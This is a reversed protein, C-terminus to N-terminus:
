KSCDLVLAGTTARSELRSHAAAADGLAFREPREVKLFSRLGSFVDAANAELSARDAIYDTLKPRTIYLSGKQSLLLPAFDPVPGSANGYTVMMGRPRLSDLSALFTDKGVSDYVVDVGTACIARVRAAVNESSLITHDAGLRRAVEAKEPTSVVALVNGGLHKIWQV